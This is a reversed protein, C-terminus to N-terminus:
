AWVKKVMKVQKRGLNLLESFLWVDADLRNPSPDGPEWQCLEDELLAFAGVHHIRGKHKETHEYLASVPEARTQKGRSAHVIKVNVSPDIGHIVAPIWEGGNNAEVILVDAGLKHYLTIAAWAQQKPTGHVTADELVYGHINDGYRAIGGGVIGCDDANTSSTAAPDTAVGVRYMRPAKLVRTDEIWQRKWLAGPNDELLEANLEQRGLRTGEYKKITRDFFVPSLNARNDYTTGRTQVLGASALVERLV